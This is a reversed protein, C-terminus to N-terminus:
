GGMSIPFKDIDRGCSTQGGTQISIDAFLVDHQECASQRITEFLSIRETRENDTGTRVTVQFFHLNGAKRYVQRTGERQLAATNKFVQSVAQCAGSSDTQVHSSLIQVKQSGQRSFRGVTSDYNGVTHVQFGTDVQFTGFVLSIKAQFLSLTSHAHIGFEVGRGFNISGVQLNVIELEM